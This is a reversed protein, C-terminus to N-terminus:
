YVLRYTYQNPGNVVRNPCLGFDSQTRIQIDGMAEAMIGVQGNAQAAWDINGASILRVNNVDGKAAFHIDSGNTYLEVSGWKCSPHGVKGKGAISIGPNNSERDVAIAVDQMDLIDNPGVKVVCDTVIGVNRMPTSPLSLQGNGNCSVIYITNEALTAPFDAVSIEEKAPASGDDHFLYAWGEYNTGFTAIMNAYSGTDPLQRLREVYDGVMAANLPYLPENEGGRWWAENWGENVSPDKDDPGICDFCTTSTAVGSEFTSHNTVKFGNVGHLCINNYFDNTSSQLLQNGAILGSNHCTSVDGVAIAEAHVNWIPNFGFLGLIRLFNMSVPNGNERARRTIVHVANTPTTNATFTKDEFDFKGFRIDTDALVDGNYTTNMNATGYANAQYVPDESAKGVSMVAALASSDATAQLLTQYRYADTMDVAVGGFAAYLMFWGISWFTYSGREDRAFRGLAGNRIGSFSGTKLPKM